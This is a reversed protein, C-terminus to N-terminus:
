SEKKTYFLLTQGITADFVHYHMEKGSIRSILKQWWEPEEVTIHLPTREFCAATGIIQDSVRLMDWIHHEVWKRDLHELVDFSLCCDFEKDTFPLYGLQIDHQVFAYGDRDYSGPVIDLGTVDYGMDVLFKCLKGNGCGVELISAPKAKLSLIWFPLRIIGQNNYRYGALTHHMTQYLAENKTPFKM